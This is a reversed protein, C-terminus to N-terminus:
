PVRPVNEFKTVPSSYKQTRKNRWNHWKNRLLRFNTLISIGLMVLSNVLLQALVLLTLSWGAWEQTSPSTFAQSFTLLHYSALSICVENFIELRNTVPDEFPRYNILYALSVLNSLIFLFIQAVPYNILAVLIISLFLRRLYFVTNYQVQPM